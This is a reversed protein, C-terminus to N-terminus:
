GILIYLTAPDPPDLEDYDEQTKETWVANTGPAGTIDALAILNAWSGGVLRWQVHTASAQLQVQAGDAGRLDDTAFGLGDASTFTAVGTAPNYSGSTWGKGDIGDTGKIDALAVLDAWTGGALRWQIHTATKQLQVQAGDAGKLDALAVLNTWAGTGLRWQIHTLTTQLGVEQGNAGDAPRINVAEAATDVLGAAGIYKGTAPKSGAGGTWDTVQLVQRAGDAVLSLVPSWGKDGPAGGGGGGPARLDDTTFGLGDASTFTIKGTDPDYSAGTWGKGDLGDAGKLADLAVLNAWAGGALRWQIHTATTQLQVERGDTGALDALAILDAWAGGDLRWQVHTASKQLQVEKGDAGAAGRVNVAEAATDVLGSAGIYKGTAPKPGTGGAWDVVQLVQRAGDAVLALVASWGNTGPTGPGTGPDGTPIRLDDTEFELGDDSTFAIKGTSPNYSAGTWGKGPLGQLFKALLVQVGGPLLTMDITSM